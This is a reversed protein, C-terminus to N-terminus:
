KSFDLLWTDEITSKILSFSNRGYNNLVTETVQSGVQLAGSQELRGKIWKGLIKLDDCSRFNKSNSGSTKCKFEWGDDTIVKFELGDDSDNKPYGMLRTIEAPVILEVEYWHRPKTFGTQTNERGKGFYVNLNSKQQELGAKLPIEFQLSTKITNFESHKNSRTVGYHDFLLINTEKIKFNDVGLLDFSKCYKTKLDDIFSSVSQCFADETIYADVEYIREPNGISSLNSSGILSGIRGRENEFSYVKGHYKSVTAFSISGLNKELLVTNLLSIAQLQQRTLGEFWHMGIVLSISPRSNIEIIRTLETISDVSIYGTAIKLLSSNSIEKYFIDSFSHSTANLPPHNSTLLEIM